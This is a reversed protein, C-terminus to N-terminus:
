DARLRKANAQAGDGSLGTPVHGRGAGGLPVLDAEPNNRWAQPPLDAGASVAASSRRMQERPSPRDVGADGSLAGTFWAAATRHDAPYVARRPPCVQPHILRKKWFRGPEYDLQESIEEGMFRWSDPNATVEDPDVIVEKVPLHEPLRPGAPQRRAQKAAGAMPEDAVPADAKKSELEQLLSLQNPDLKESKQGYIMRVLADIKEELLKIKLRADSLESELQAERETM